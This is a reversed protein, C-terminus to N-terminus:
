ELAIVCQEFSQMDEDFFPAIAPAQSGQLLDKARVQCEIAQRIAPGFQAGGQLIHVRQGPSFQASFFKQLDIIQDPGYVLSEGAASKQKRLLRDLLLSGKL